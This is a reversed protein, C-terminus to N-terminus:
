INKKWMFQLDWLVIKYKVKFIWYDKDFNIYRIYIYKKCKSAFKGNRIRIM